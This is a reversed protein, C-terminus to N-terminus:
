RGCTEDLLSEAEAPVSPTTVDALLVWGGGPRGLLALSWDGMEEAAGPLERLVLFPSPDLRDVARVHFRQGGIAVPERSWGAAAPVTALAARAEASLCSIHIHLLNQSRGAVSNIALARGDPSAPVLQQGVRWGVQWFDAVPAEFVLPSEIGTVEPNSPVLLWAFPKAPDDDKLVVYGREPAVITCGKTAPDAVCAQMARMLGDSHPGRGSPSTCAVLVLLLAIWRM